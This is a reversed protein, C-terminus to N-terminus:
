QLARWSGTPILWQSIEASEVINIECTPEENTEGSTCGVCFVCTVLALLKKGATMVFSELYKLTGLGM